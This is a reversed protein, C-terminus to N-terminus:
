EHIPVDYPTRNSHIANDNRIIASFIPISDLTNLYIPEALACYTDFKKPDQKIARKYYKLGNNYQNLNNYASGVIIYFKPIM